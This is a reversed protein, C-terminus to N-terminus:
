PVCLGNDGSIPPTPDMFLSNMWILDSIQKFSALLIKKRKYIRVLIYLYLSTILTSKTLLFIGFICQPVHLNHPLSTNFHFNEWLYAFSFQNPHRFCGLKLFNCSMM